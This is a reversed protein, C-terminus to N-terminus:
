HERAIKGGIKALELLLSRMSMKPYRSLPRPHDIDPPLDYDTTRPEVPWLAPDPPIPLAIHAPFPSSRTTEPRATLWSGGVITGRRLRRYEGWSWERGRRAWRWRGRAARAHRAGPPARM